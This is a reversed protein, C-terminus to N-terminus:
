KAPPNKSSTDDEVSAELSGGVSPFNFALITCGKGDSSNGSSLLFSYGGGIGTFLSVNDDLAVGWSAAQTNIIQTAAETCEKNTQEDMHLEELPQIVIAAVHEDAKEPAM